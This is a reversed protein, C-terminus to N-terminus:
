RGAAYCFHLYPLQGAACGGLFHGFRDVVLPDQLLARLPSDRTFVDATSRQLSQLQAEYLAAIAIANQRELQQQKTATTVTDKFFLRKNGPM